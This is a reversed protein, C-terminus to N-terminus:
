KSDRDSKLIGYYAADCLGQNNLDYSRLTGEYKMGCKQMVGGSSPNRPDHRAEVRNVGVEDFLFNIVASLAESTIGKNWWKSGICFGVHAMEVDDYISVVTINGIPENIEKLVIAWQYFKPNHNYETVWDCIVSESDNLDRHPQWTLYKTVKKDSAWNDFMAFYDEYLFRRLILRETNLEQTGCHNLM